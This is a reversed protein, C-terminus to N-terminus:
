KKLHHFITALLEASRVPKTLYGDFRNESPAATEEYNSFTSISIVPLGPKLEKIKGLFNYNDLDLNSANWLIISISPNKMCIDLAEQNNSAPIFKFSAAEIIIKYYTMNAWDNEAVLVVPQFTAEAEKEIDRNNITETESIYESPFIVSVSTGKGKASEVEIKGGMKEVFGRAISLGLGSGQYERTVTNNGQFFVKFIQSLSEEDIGPGTDRIIIEIIHDKVRTGMRIQGKSTFKVANDVIHSLAKTLLARDCRIRLNEPDETTFNILDLGLEMCKPLCKNYIQEFVSKIDVMELRPTITGSVLMSIDMYNTITEVLRDSSTNLIKLYSTKEEETIGSQVIFESFGLIGNLPTRIEHSINQIFAMKLKDAAEAKEKTIRLESIMEKQRTVDEKIMVMHTVKGENDTVPSLSALEWCTEGNKKKNHFEGKWQGGKLVYEMIDRYYQDQFEGGNKNRPNTGMLEERTCGSTECARPNVYEINGERDTIFISVSSQEVARSLKRHETDAQKQEKVLESERLARKISPVLRQLKSKLVYDIAGNLLSTIAADEGLVGSVFIFPIDPYKEKCTAMADAGSYGPLEYDSIILDIDKEELIRLFDKKNDVFYYDFSNFERSIASKVLISDPESDELHLIRVLNQM